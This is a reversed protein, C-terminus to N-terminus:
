IQVSEIQLVKPVGLHLHQILVQIYLRPDLLSAKALSIFPPSTLVSITGFVVLSAAIGNRSSVLVWSLRPSVRSNLHSSWSSFDAFPVSPWCSPVCSVAWFPATDQACHKQPLLPLIGQTLPSPPELFICIITEVQGDRGSDAKVLDTKTSDPPPVLDDTSIPSPNVM